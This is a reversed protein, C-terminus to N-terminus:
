GIGNRGAFASEGVTGGERGCRLAAPGFRRAPFTAPIRLPAVSAGQRGIAPRATTRREPRRTRVGAGTPLPGPGDAAPRSWEPGIRLAPGAGCAGAAFLRLQRLIRGTRRRIRLQRLLGRPNGSG